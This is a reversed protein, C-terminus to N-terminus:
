LALSLAVAFVATLVATGVGIFWLLLNFKSELKSTQADLKSTQADMRSALTEKQADLVERLADLRSDIRHTLNTAAMDKIHNLLAFAQDAKLGTDRLLAFAQEANVSSSQPEESM